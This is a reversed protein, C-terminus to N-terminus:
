KHKHTLYFCFIMALFFCIIVVTNWTKLNRLSKLVAGHYMLEERIDRSYGGDSMFDIGDQTIEMEFGDPGIFSKVLGDDFLITQLDPFEEGFLEAYNEYFVQQRITTGDCEQLLLALIGDLKADRGPVSKILEM